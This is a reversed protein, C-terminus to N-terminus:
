SVTGWSQELVDNLITTGFKYKVYAKQIDINGLKAKLTEFFSHKEYKDTHEYKLPM